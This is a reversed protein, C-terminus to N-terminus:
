PVVTLRNGWEGTYGDFRIRIEYSITDGRGFIFPSTVNATEYWVSPNFGIGYRIDVAVPNPPATFTVVTNGDLDTGSDTLTPLDPPVPIGYLYAWNGNVGADGNEVRVRADYAYGTASGLFLLTPDDGLADQDQNVLDDWEHGIYRLEWVAYWSSAALSNDYPIHDWSVFLTDASISSTLGTVTAPQTDVPSAETWDSAGAGNVARVRFTITSNASIGTVTAAASSVTGTFDPTAFDGSVTYIAQWEYSTAGSVADWTYGISDAFLDSVALNGPASPVSGSVAGLIFVTPITLSSAFVLM